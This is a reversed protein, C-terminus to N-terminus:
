CWVYSTKNIISLVVEPYSPFLRGLSQVFGPRPSITSPSLMEDVALFCYLRARGGAFVRAIWM